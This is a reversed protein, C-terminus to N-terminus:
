SRKLDLRKKSQLRFLIMGTGAMIAGVLLIQFVDTATNPLKPGDVPFVGGMTGEVYFKFEFDSTLGQYENGLEYPMEITLTLKEQKSSALLRPELKHFNGLSGNYLEKKEDKVTLILANYLMESGSIFKASSLYKFDQTGSNLIDIERSAWDGPVLKSVNFSVSAPSLAIDIENNEEAEAEANQSLIMIITVIFVKLVAKLNVM